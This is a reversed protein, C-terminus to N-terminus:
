CLLLLIKIILPAKCIIGGDQVDEMNDPGQEMTGCFKSKDEEPFEELNSRADVMSGNVPQLENTISGSILNAAHEEDTKATSTFEAGSFSKESSPLANNNGHSVDDVSVNIAHSNEDSGPHPKQEQYTKQETLHEDENNSVSEASADIGNSPM